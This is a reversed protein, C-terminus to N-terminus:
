DFTAVVRLDLGDAVALNMRRSPAGLPTGRWFDAVDTGRPTSVMHHAVVTATAATLNGTRAMAGALHVGDYCGEAYADLPPATPGFARDAAAALDEHRPDAISPLSRMCAYLEGGDDGGSALLCNEELSGSLRIMRRDLGAARFARNFAVLDSGVLSVVVADPRAADLGHLLRDLHLVGVPVLRDFVVDGYLQGVVRRATRHMAQPWIYDNGVLAWRRIHRHEHLWRMTPILQAAPSEGLRVARAAVPGGEHPPTFVSMVRGGIATDVARRVDSTHFGVLADVLCSDVLARVASVVHTAPQGADVPVLEMPRGHAGGAANFERAALEAYALGSPGTLGLVGSMPVLVGIRVVRPDPGAYLLEAPSRIDASDTM